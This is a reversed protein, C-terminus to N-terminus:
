IGAQMGGSEVTADVSCIVAVAAAELIVEDYLRASIGSLDPNPKDSGVHLQIGIAIQGAAVVDRFPGRGVVDGRFSGLYRHGAGKASIRVAREPKREPWVVPPPFQNDIRLQGERRIEGSAKLIRGRRDTMVRNPEDVDSTCRKGCVYRYGAIG